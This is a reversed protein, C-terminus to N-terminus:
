SVNGVYALDEPLYLSTNTGIPISTYIGRMKVEAGPPPTTTLNVSYGNQGGPLYNTICITYSAQHAGSFTQINQPFSFQRAVAQLRVLSGRNDM